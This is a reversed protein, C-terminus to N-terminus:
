NIAEDDALVDSRLLEDAREGVAVGDRIQNQAVVQTSRRVKRPPIFPTPISEALDPVVQFAADSGAKTFGLLGDYTAQYLQWYQLTYNVQPDLTGGAAKALLKMTGGRHASTTAGTASAGIAAVVVLTSLLLLKGIRSM